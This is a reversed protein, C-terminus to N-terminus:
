AAGEGAEDDIANAIREGLKLVTQFLELGKRDVTGGFAPSFLTEPEGGYRGRREIVLAAGGLWRQVLGVSKPERIQIEVRPVDGQLSDAIVYLRKESGLVEFVAGGTGYPARVGEVVRLGLSSGITKYDM